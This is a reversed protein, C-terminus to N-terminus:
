IGNNLWTDSGGSYRGDAQAHRLKKRVRVAWASNKRSPCQTTPKRARVKNEGALLRDSPLKTSMLGGGLLPM